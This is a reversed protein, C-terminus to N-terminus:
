VNAREKIKAIMRATVDDISYTKKTKQYQAESSLIKKHLESKYEREVFQEVSMLIMDPYGNKTIIMPQNSEKVFRSVESYNNRLEKSPRINEVSDGRTM